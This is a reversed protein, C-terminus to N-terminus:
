RAVARYNFSGANVANGKVYDVERKETRAFATQFRTRWGFAKTFEGPLGTAAVEPDAVHM